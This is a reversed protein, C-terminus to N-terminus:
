SRLHTCFPLCAHHTLGRTSVVRPWGRFPRLEAFPLQLREESPQVQCVCTSDVLVHCIAGFFFVPAITIEKRKQQGFFHRMALLGPQLTKCALGVEGEKLRNILKIETQLAGQTLGQESIPLACTQVGTVSTDRIGDEAQFFFFFMFCLYCM